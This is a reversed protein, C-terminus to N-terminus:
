GCTMASVAVAVRLSTARMRLDSFMSLAESNRVGMRRSLRRRYMLRMSLLPLARLPLHLWDISCVSNWDTSRSSLLHSSCPATMM